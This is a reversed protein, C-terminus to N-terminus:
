GYFTLILIFALASVAAVAVMETLASGEEFM